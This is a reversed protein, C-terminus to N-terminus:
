RARNVTLFLLWTRDANNGNPAGTNTPPSITGVLTPKGELTIIQCTLKGTEFGPQYSEGSKDVSVMGTFKVFEPAVNLDVTKGDEGFTLEVEHSWGTNRYAFSSPTTTTYPWPSFQRSAPVAGPSIM